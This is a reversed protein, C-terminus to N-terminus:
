HVAVIGLALSSAIEFHQCYAEYLNLTNDARSAKFLYRQNEAKSLPLIFTASTNFLFFTPHITPCLLTTGRSFVLRTEGLAGFM